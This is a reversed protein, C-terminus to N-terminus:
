PVLPVYKSWVPAFLIRMQRPDNTIQPASTLVEGLMMGQATLPRQTVPDVSGPPLYVWSHEFDIGVRRVIQHAENFTLPYYKGDASFEVGVDEGPLIVPTCRRWRGILLADLEAPTTYPEFSLPSAACEPATTPDTWTVCGMVGEACPFELEPGSGGSGTPTGGSGTFTGASGTPTGGAGFDVTGANGEGFDITGATGGGVDVTGASAGGGGLTGVTVGSGCGALYMLSSAAFLITKM